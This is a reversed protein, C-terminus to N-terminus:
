LNTRATRTELEPKTAHSFLAYRTGDMAHDHQKLPDDSEGDDKYQYQNFENRVNQCHRAVRLDDALSAVHQIGPTVDNEAPKAALGDRRFQEINAPEAPDCYIAGEGYEDVLSEVARSHDNVTCRREYWEDAITWSDGARVIALAVAPNNHGWDVGYVVEDYDDPPTDVIHEDGFWPYILGKFKVFEGEIEQQYSQGTHQRERSEVYDDPTARNARTSVGRITTTHDTRLISGDEVPEEEAGDLDVFEDYVWNYGKPTGTAFLNRYEGTRLRDGVVLYTRHEHQAVEDLWAAAINLGELRQIKRANNASELIVRTGNPYSILNESSRYEIQDQGLLGWRRMEPIIVNRLMPVTPAVVALQEGPNWEFIHRALRMLGAVTKGSGVGGIYATEANRDRVFAEQAANGNFNVVLRCGSESTTAV